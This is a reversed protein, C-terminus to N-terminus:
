KKPTLEALRKRAINRFCGNEFVAHYAKRGEETKFMVKPDYLRKGDEIFNPNAERDPLTAYKQLIKRNSTAGIANQRVFLDVANEALDDVFTPDARYLDEGRMLLFDSAATAFGQDTKATRTIVTKVYDLDQIKQLADSQVHYRNSEEFVKKFYNDDGPIMSEIANSAIFAENDNSAYTEVLQRLFNQDGKVADLLKHAFYEPTLEIENEKAKKSSEYEAQFKQPDALITRAQSETYDKQVQEQRPQNGGQLKAELGDKQKKILDM